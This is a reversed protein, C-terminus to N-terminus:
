IYKSLNRFVGSDLWYRDSTVTKLQVVFDERGFSYVNKQSTVPYYFPLQPTIRTIRTDNRHYAVIHIVQSSVCAFLSLWM